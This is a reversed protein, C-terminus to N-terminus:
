IGGVMMFVAGSGMAIAIAVLFAETCRSIGSLLDGSVSDRIANTIALGPVLLMLVSIIVTDIHDLLNLKMFCFSILTTSAGGIFNSFFSHIRAKEMQHVIVRLLLGVAFAALVDKLTGNFFSGFGFTCIGSFLWTLGESYRPEHRIALLQRKLDEVSINRNKINRSLDNIKDIRELNVSKIKTRKINHAMQEGYSFSVILVTPTAFSDVVCAGYQKCIYNMTEEVRYTEAGNELLIEGALTAVRALENLDM